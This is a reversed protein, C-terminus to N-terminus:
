TRSHWAAGFLWTLDARSRSATRLITRTRLIGPSIDYKPLPLDHGPKRDFGSQEKGRESHAHAPALTCGELQGVAHLEPFFRIGVFQVERGGLIRKYQASSFQDRLVSHRDQAAIE